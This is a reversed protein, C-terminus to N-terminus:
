GLFQVEALNGYSGAAAAFYRLYRLVPPAQVPYAQNNALNYAAKIRNGVCTVVM